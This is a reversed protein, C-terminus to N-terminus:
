NVEGACYQLAVLGKGITEDAGVQMFEPLNDTFLTKIATESTIGTNQYYNDNGEPQRPPGCTVLSFLITETPLYETSRLSGDKTTGSSGDIRINPYVETAHKVFYTYDDDSLLVLKKGFETRLFQDQPYLLGGLEAALAALEPSNQTAYPFEELLLRNNVWLSNAGSPCIRANQNGVTLQTLLPTLSTLSIGALRAQRALRSLVLPSTVWVWPGKLSRVPFAIVMADGFTVAGAHEGSEQSGFLAKVKKARQPDGALKLDVEGRLVGKLSSAQIIPFDTTRERMIPRDIIGLGEGSGNHLPTVVNIFLFGYQAM